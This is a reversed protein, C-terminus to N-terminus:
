SITVDSAPMVFYMEKEMGSTEIFPIATGESDSISSFHGSLYYASKVIQGAQAKTPVGMGDSTNDAISFVQGGGSKKVVIPNGIM